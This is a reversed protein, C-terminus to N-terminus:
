GPHVDANLVRLGRVHHLCLRPLGPRNRGDGPWAEWRHTVPTTVVISQIEFWCGQSCGTRIQGAYEAWQLGPTSFELDCKPALGAFTGRVGSAPARGRSDLRSLGLQCSCSASAQSAYSNFTITVPPAPKMPELM